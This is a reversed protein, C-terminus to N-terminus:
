MILKSRAFIKSAAAPLLLREGPAPIIHKMM